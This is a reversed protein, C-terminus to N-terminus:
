GVRRQAGEDVARAGLARRLSPVWARQLRLVGRVSIRRLVRPVLSRVGASGFEKPQPVLILETFHMCVYAFCSKLRGPALVPSRERALTASLDCLSEAISELQGCANVQPFLIVPFLIVSMVVHCSVRGHLLSTFARAVGACVARPSACRRAHQSARTSARMTRVSPWEIAELLPTCVSCAQARSARCMM